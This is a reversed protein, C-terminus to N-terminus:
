KDEEIKGVAKKPQMGLNTSRPMLPPLGNKKRFEAYRALHKPGLEKWAEESIMPEGFQMPTGKVIENNGCDECEWYKPADLLPGALNFILAKGGCDRCACYDEGIPGFVRIGATRWRNKNM